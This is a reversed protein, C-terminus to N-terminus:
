PCAIFGIGDVEPHRAADVAKVMEFSPKRVRAERIKYYARALELTERKILPNKEQEFATGVEGFGLPQARDGPSRFRELRGVPAVQDACRPPATSSVRLL